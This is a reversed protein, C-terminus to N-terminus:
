LRRSDVWSGHNVSLYRDPALSTVLMVTNIDLHERWTDSAQARPELWFVEIAECLPMYQMLSGVASQLREQKLFLDPQEEILDGLRDVAHLGISLGLERFALRHDAPNSSLNNVSARRPRM